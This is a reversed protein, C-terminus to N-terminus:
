KKKSVPKKEGSELENIQKMLDQLADFMDRYSDFGDLVADFDLLPNKFVNVALMIMSDMAESELMEEKEAKEYFSILQRMTRPNVETAKFTKKKGDINLTFELM